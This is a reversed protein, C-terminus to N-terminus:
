RRETSLWIEQRGAAPRSGEQLHQITTRRGEKTRDYEYDSQLQGLEGKNAIKRCSPSSSRLSPLSRENPPLWPLEPHADCSKSCDQPCGSSRGWGKGSGSSTSRTPLRLQEGKARERKMEEDGNEVRRKSMAVCIAYLTLGARWAVSEGGHAECVRSIAHDGASDRSVERVRLIGRAPAQDASYVGVGVAGGILKACPM